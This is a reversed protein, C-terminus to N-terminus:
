TLILGSPTMRYRLLRSTVWPYRDLWNLFRDNSVIDANADQAMKIIKLDDSQSRPTQLVHGDHIMERLQNPKDVKHVLAASVVIVPRYGASRLSRLALVLNVVRPVGSPALHYAVNNGDVIVARRKSM